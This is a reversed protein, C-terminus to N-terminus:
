ASRICVALVHGDTEKIQFLEDTDSLVNTFENTIEFGSQFHPVRSIASLGEGTMKVYSESLAWLATRTREDSPFPADVGLKKLVSDSVAGIKQVDVGCPLDSVVAAVLEKSHSLSFHFRGKEDYPKGRSDKKIDSPAVDLSLAIKALDFLLRRVACSANDGGGIKRVAVTM